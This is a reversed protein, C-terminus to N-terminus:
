MPMCVHACVCVCACVSVCLHQQGGGGRGGQKRIQLLPLWPGERLSSLGCYLLCLIFTVCLLSHTHVVCLRTCHLEREVHQSLSQRQQAPM